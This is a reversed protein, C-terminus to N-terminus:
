YPLANTRQRAHDFVFGFLVFSNLTLYPLVSVAKLSDLEGLWTNLLAQPDDWALQEPQSSATTSKSESFYLLNDEAESDPEAESNSLYCADEYFDTM